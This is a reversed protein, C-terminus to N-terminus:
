FPSQGSILADEDMFELGWLTLSSYLLLFQLGVLKRLCTAKGELSGGLNM